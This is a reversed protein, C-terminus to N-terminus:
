GEEEDAFAFLHGDTRVYVVGRSLAPTAMIREGLDTRSLVELADGAKLVAVEGRAFATYVKGDGAVPSAYVPGRSGTRGEFKLAGTAADLCTALGGNKVVYLRGGYLLPSPCEPVGRAHQWKVRAVDEGDGPQVALIANTHAFGDVWALLKDYETATIRGDKDEDLFSFFIRLPHDGEGDADARSLVSVNESAEDPSLDGSGDHDHAVLLEEFEPLGIVETNTKMNYSSLFVTDDALVPTVIPEDTLGPLSWREEGSALDYATLWGVGYALVEIGDAHERLVPTSWGAGFGARERRWITEGSGPDLAELYSEASTDRLFLLMGEAIVPSAATGFRNEAVPLERRWREEGEFDYALLGFSGFHVIVVEGDTAPTSAAASNVRHLREGAQTEVSRRWLIGGTARDLAITELGDEGAATLFIRDGWLCPSSHGAPLPTRWRLNSEPDLTAPLAQEDTAVGAGGWGRFQNWEHDSGPPVSGAATAALLVFSTALSIM